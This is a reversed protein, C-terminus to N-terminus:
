QKGFVQVWYPEGKENKEVETWKKIVPTYFDAWAPVQVPFICTACVFSLLHKSKM